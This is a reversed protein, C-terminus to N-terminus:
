LYLVISFAPWSEPANQRSVRNGVLRIKKKRAQQEKGDREVERGLKGGDLDAM